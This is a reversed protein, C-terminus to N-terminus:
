RKAKEEARRARRRKARIINYRFFFIFYLLLVIGICIAIMRVLRSHILLSLQSYIYELRSLRVNTNALLFYPGFSKGSKDTVSIEGLVQNRSVPATVPEAGEQESYITIHKTYSKELDMDNPLFLSLGSSPCVVVTDTGEALQVPVEAVPAIPNLIERLSYNNFFWQFLRKAQVFSQIDFYGNSSEVTSCGLVVAVVYENDTRVASALCYGSADTYSSKIGSAYSYYYRTYDQRLIYNTNALTRASSLETAPIDYSVTNVIDMLESCGVFASAIRAMDEATSYQGDATLGHTNVFRTNVCGLEEARENMRKVFKPVSGAVHEAIVNCADSGSGILACYLLQELTLQEGVHLGQTVADPSIDTSLAEGATVTDAFASEERQVSEYALLATMMVGLGAVPRPLTGNTDYLINGSAADMLVAASVNELAFGDDAAAAASLLSLALSLCVLLSLLSRIRNHKMM